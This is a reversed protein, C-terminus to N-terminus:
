SDISCHWKLYLCLLAYFDHIPFLTHIRFHNERNFFLIFSLIDEEEGEEEKKSEEQKEGQFSIRFFTRLM